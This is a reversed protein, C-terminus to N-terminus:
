AFTEVLPGSNSIATRIDDPLDEAPIRTLIDGTQPNLIEVVVEENDNDYNLRAQFARTPLDVRQEQPPRETRESKEVPRESESEQTRVVPAETGRISGVQNSSGITELSTM